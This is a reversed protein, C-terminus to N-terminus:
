VLHDAARSLQIKRETKKFVVVCNRIRNCASQMKCTNVPPQFSLFHWRVELKGTVM